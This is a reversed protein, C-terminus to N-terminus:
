KIFNRDIEYETDTLYLLMSLRHLGDYILGNKIDIKYEKLLKLLQSLDKKYYFNIFNMSAEHGNIKSGDKRISQKTVDIYISYDKFDNELLCKYHISESLPLEYFSNNKKWNKTIYKNILYESESSKDFTGLICRIKSLKV